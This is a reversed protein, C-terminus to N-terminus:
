RHRRRSRVPPQPLSPTAAAPRGDNAEEDLEGIRGRAYDRVPELDSAAEARQRLLSEVKRELAEVREPLAPESATFGNLLFDLPVGTANAITELEDENKAGRPASRSVIRAMTAASIGVREGSSKVEIGAYALAGSVRRAVEEPDPLAM